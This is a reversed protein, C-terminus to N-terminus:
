MYIICYISCINYAVYSILCLSRGSPMCRWCQGNLHNYKATVMIQRKLIKFIVDWADFVSWFNVSLPRVQLRDVIFIFDSFNSNMKLLLQNFDNNQILDLFQDRYEIITSNMPCLCGGEYCCECRKQTRMQDIKLKHFNPHYSGFTVTMPFPRHQMNFKSSEGLPVVAMKRDTKPWRSSESAIPRWLFITVKGRDTFHFIM